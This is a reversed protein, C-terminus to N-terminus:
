TGDGTGNCTPCTRSWDGTVMDDGVWGYGNCQECTENSGRQRTAVRDGRRAGGQRTTAGDGRATV